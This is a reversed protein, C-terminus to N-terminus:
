DTTLKIQNNLKIMEDLIKDDEKSMIIVIIWIFIVLLIVAGTIYLIKIDDNDSSKKINDDKPGNTKPIPNFPDFNDEEM